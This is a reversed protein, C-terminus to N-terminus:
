PSWRSRCEKGVRREESRHVFRAAEPNDKAVLATLQKVLPIAPNLAAATATALADADMLETKCKAVIAPAADAPIVGCRAEARSLAAEFDLMRQLRATDSFIECMAASGFLPDLLAM